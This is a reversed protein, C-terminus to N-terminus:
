LQTRAEIVRGCIADNENLSAFEYPAFLRKTFLRNGEKIIRRLLFDNDGEYILVISGDPLNLIECRDIILISNKPFVEEVSAPSQLAFAQYSLEKETKIWECEATQCTNADNLWKTILNWPLVPLAHGKHFSSITNLPELGLLQEIAIDFFKAIATLTSIRPDNTQGSLLRNITTQPVNVGRCLDAESLQANNMLQRVVKGISLAEPNVEVSKTNTADQM